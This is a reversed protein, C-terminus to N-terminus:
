NTVPWAPSDSSNISEEQDITYGDPLEKHRVGCNTFNCRTIELEGKGFTEELCAVFDDFVRDTCAVKIDDVHKTAIFDLEGGKHRVILQEDHLLPKAGVTTQRGHWNSPLAALRM